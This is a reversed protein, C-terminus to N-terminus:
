SVNKAFNNILSGPRIELSCSLDLFLNFSQILFCKPLDPIHANVLCGYRDRWFTSTMPPPLCTTSSPSPLPITRSSLPTFPFWWFWHRWQIRTIFFCFVFLFCSYFGKKQVERTTWHNFSQVEVAPLEPEMGPQPLDRMGCLEALFYFLIFYFLNLADKPFLPLSIKKFSFKKKCVSFKLISEIHSSMLCNNIKKSAIVNYNRFLTKIEWLHM